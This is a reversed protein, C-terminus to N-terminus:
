HQKKTDYFIKTNQKFQQLNQTVGYVKLETTNAFTNKFFM